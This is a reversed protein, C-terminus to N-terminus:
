CDHGGYTEYQSNSRGQVQQPMDGCVVQHYAFAAEFIVRGDSTKGRMPDGGEEYPLREHALGINPRLEVFETPCLGM